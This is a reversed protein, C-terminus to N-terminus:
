GERYPFKAGMEQAKRLIQNLTAEIGIETLIKWYEDSEPPVSSLRGRVDKRVLHFIEDQNAVKFCWDITKPDPTWSMWFDGRM